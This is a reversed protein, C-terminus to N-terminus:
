IWQCHHTHPTSPELEEWRQVVRWGSTLSPRMWPMEEAIALLSDKLDGVPWQSDFTAYGYSRFLDSFLAQDRALMRMGEPAQTALWQKFIKLLRERRRLHAGAPSSTPHGGPRAAEARRGRGLLLGRASALPIALVMWRVEARVLNPLRSIEAAGADRAQTNKSLLLWLWSPFKMRPPRVPRDRSPEDARLSWTTTHLGRPVQGRFLVEAWTQLLTRNLAPSSSRGKAETSLNVLSDQLTVFRCRSPARRCISRFAYAEQVNIHGPSKFRHKM